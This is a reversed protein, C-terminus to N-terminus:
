QLMHNVVGMSGTDKYQVGEPTVKSRPQFLRMAPMQKKNTDQNLPDARVVDRPGKHM